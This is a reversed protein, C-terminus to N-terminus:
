RSGFDRVLAAMARANASGEAELGDAVGSRDDVPRNQSVKWKGEIRQVPIEIAVIARALQELYEAPADDISWPQPRAAEHRSTLARVTALVSQPDERAILSGHCHVVTYDWTPVVKGTRQKEAYWSPSIYGQPGQFIALVPRQNRWLPNARAVHGELRLRGGSERQVLMPLHDATLGDESQSVVTAFPHARVLAELVDLDDQKFHSPQYVSVGQNAIDTRPLSLHWCDLAFGAVCFHSSM